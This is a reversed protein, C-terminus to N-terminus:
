AAVSAAPARGDGRAGSPFEVNPPSPASHQSGPGGPLGVERFAAKVKPGQIKSEKTGAELHTVEDPSQPDCSPRMSTAKNACQPPKLTAKPHSQPPKPTGIPQRDVRMSTAKLDCQLPKPHSQGTKRCEENQTRGEGRGGPGFRTERRRSQVKSKLSQVEARGWLGGSYLEEGAGREPREPPVRSLGQVHGPVM